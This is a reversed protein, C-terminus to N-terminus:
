GLLQRLFGLGNVAIEDQSPALRRWISAATAITQNESTFSEIVVPGDYGIEGLATAIAGWDTHDAGPTGRDTGCAHFHYLRAGATRIAAAPYKEEINMHFTDLLIGCAPSDVREVVEIAQAATNLLSTEFRNLPEVALRVGREGAYDAVPRLNAVLRELRATRETEDLLGTKGVPSYIPGAVVSGGLAAEADICTRLYNQTSSVISRDTTTLDRDPSMAVCITAGLGLGSLLDATRAPDWDGPSEVPIEILDFGWAKVKPALAALREDTPPSVWIWTNAGFPRRM